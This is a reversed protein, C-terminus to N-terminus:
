RRATGRGCGLLSHWFCSIALADVRARAARALAEDICREPPGRWRRPISSPRQRRRRHRPPLAQLRSAASASRTPASSGRARRHRASTWRSCWCPESRPPSSAATSACTSIRHMSRRPARAPSSCRRASSNRAPMATALEWRPTSSSADPARARDPQRRRQVAPRPEARRPLLGPHHLEGAGGASAWERALFQTLNVVAAKACAYSAVRSLPVHASVSAINIISGRARAVMPPGFAQCPLLVGADLNLRQNAQWDALAIDEFRKTGVVTVAPDNGGAANVLVTPEGLAQVVQAHAQDLSARSGADCAIFAARGGRSRVALARAEGREASRGLVAVAAGARALGEALAGGLVGTGGIM